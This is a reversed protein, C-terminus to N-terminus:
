KKIDFTRKESIDRGSLESVELDLYKHEINMINIHPVDINLKNINNKLNNINNYEHRNNYIYIFETNNQEIIKIENLYDIKIINIIESNNLINQFENIDYKFIYLNNSIKYINKNQYLILQLKPNTIFDPLKENFNFEPINNNKRIDNIKKILNIQNEKLRYEYKEINEKKFILENKSKENLDKFKSQLEFEKINIGNLEKLVCINIDDNKNHECAYILLMIFNYFINFSMFVILALTFSYFWTLISTKGKDLKKLLEKKMLKRIYKFKNIYFIYHTLDLSFFFLFFLAKISGKLYILTNKSLIKNLIYSVIMFFLYPLLIYNDMFDVFNKKKKDYGERLNNDNFTGHIYYM